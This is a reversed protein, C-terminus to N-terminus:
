LPTNKHFKEPQLGGLFIIKNNMQFNAKEKIERKDVLQSNRKRFQHKLKRRRATGQRNIWGENKKLKM